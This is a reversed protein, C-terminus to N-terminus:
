TRAEVMVTQRAARALDDPRPKRAGDLRIDYYAADQPFNSLFELLAPQVVAPDDPFATAHYPVDKGRVRLVVAAGGRLNRWWQNTAATFCHIGSDTELYRV